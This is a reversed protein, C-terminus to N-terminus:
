PASEAFFDERGGARVPDTTLFEGPCEAARPRRVARAIFDARPDAIDDATEIGNGDGRTAAIGGMATHRQRHGPAPQRDREGRMDKRQSAPM